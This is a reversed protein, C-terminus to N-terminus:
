RIMSPTAWDTRCRSYTSAARTFPRPESRTLRTCTSGAIAVTTATCAACINPMPRTITAPSANRPKPGASGSGLQPKM